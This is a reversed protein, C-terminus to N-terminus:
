AVTHRTARFFGTAGILTALLSALAPVLFGLYGNKWYVFGAIMSGAIFSLITGLRLWNSRVERRHLDAGREPMTLVRILGTGLDTTIGTLHTTRVVSGSASSIVANQLGCSLALMALLAYDRGLALSEGFVGFLHFVGGGFSVFTLLLTVMLMPVFYLPQQKRLLRRDVLWGSIMSGSLFFLPVSLMAFADTWRGQAAEVGFLSAFGTVHSVFRGCAMFGGTNVAGGVFALM